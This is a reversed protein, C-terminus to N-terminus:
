FTLKLAGQMVRPPINGVNGIKGYNGWGVTNGYDVSPNAFSPHNTVNFAEWRFQLKAARVLNWSKMISADAGFQHPGFMINKGSNGFTGAANNTFAATNFYGKGTATSAWDWHSGKGVRLDAGAIRDARDLKQM